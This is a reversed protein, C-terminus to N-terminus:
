ALLLKSGKEGGMYGTDPMNAATGHGIDRRGDHQGVEIYRTWGLGNTQCKVDGIHGKLVSPNIAVVESVHRSTLPVVPQHFLFCFKYIAFTLLCM